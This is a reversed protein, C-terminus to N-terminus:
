LTLMEVWLEQYRCSVLTILGGAPYPKGGGGGGGGVPIKYAMSKKFGMPKAVHQGESLPLKLSYCGLVYM